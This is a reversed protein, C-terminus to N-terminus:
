QEGSWEIERVIAFNRAAVFNDRSGNPIVRFSRIRVPGHSECMVPPFFLSKSLFHSTPPLFSLCINSQLQFIIKYPNKNVKWVNEHLKHIILYM